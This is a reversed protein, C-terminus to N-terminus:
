ETAIDPCPPTPELLRRLYARWGIRGVSGPPAAQAKALRRAERAEQKADAMLRKHELEQDELKALNEREERTLLLLTTPNMDPGGKSDDVLSTVILLYSQIEDSGDTL